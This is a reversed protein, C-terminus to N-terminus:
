GDQAPRVHVVDGAAVPVVGTEIGTDVMLRGHADLDTARGVLSQGNPLEVRVQQGLTSCLSRYSTMLGHPSAALTGLHSRIGGLVQGLLETRDTPRDALLLSTANEVPLEDQAQSVNIGVGILALPGTSTHVREVLIGCVKQGGIRLDNPWKHVAATPRAGSLGTALPLLPWWQDELSPDVVATFTLAAGRPTV